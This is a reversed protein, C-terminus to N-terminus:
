ATEGAEQDLQQHSSYLVPTASTHSHSRSPLSPAPKPPSHCSGPCNQAHSSQCCTQQSLDRKGGQWRKGARRKYWPIRQRCVGDRLHGPQFHCTFKENLSGQHCGTSVPFSPTFEPFATPEKAM